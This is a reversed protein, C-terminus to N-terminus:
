DTTGRMVSDFFAADVGQFTWDNVSAMLSPNQMQQPDLDGGNMPTRSVQTLPANDIPLFYQPQPELHLADGFGATSILHNAVFVSHPFGNPLPLPQAPKPKNSDDKAIGEQSIKIFGFYPIHLQLEGASQELDRMTNHASLHVGRAADSEVDLLRRLQETGKRCMSDDARYGLM